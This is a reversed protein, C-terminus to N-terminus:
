VPDDRAENEEDTEAPDDLLDVCQSFGQISWCAESEPVGFWTESLISYAEGHDGRELAADFRVTPWLMGNTTQQIQRRAVQCAAEANPATIEMDPNNVRRLQPHYSRILSHLADRNERATALWLSPSM